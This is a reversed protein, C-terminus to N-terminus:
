FGVCSLSLYHFCFNKNSSGNLLNITYFIVMMRAATTQNCFGSFHCLCGKYPWKGANGAISPDGTVDIDEAISTDGVISPNVATGLDGAPGLDVAISPDVTPSLDGVIGLNVAPGLDGAIGLDITIGLDGAPGLDVAISPDVATGLDGVPGPDGTIDIDEAIGLDECSTDRFPTIGSVYFLLLANTM